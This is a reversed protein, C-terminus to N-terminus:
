VREADLEYDFVQEVTYRPELAARAAPSLELLRPDIPAIRPSAALGYRAEFERNRTGSVEAVRVDRDAEIQAVCIDRQARIVETQLTTSCELALRERDDGAVAERRADARWGRWAVAYGGLTGLTWTILPLWIGSSYGAIAAAALGGATGLATGAIVPSSGSAGCGIGASVAALVGLLTADGISGAAGHAHWLRGLVLTPTSLALPALRDLKTFVSARPASVVPSFGTAPSPFTMGVPVPRYATRPELASGPTTPHFQFTTM